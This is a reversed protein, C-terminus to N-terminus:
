RRRRRRWPWFDPPRLADVIAPLQDEKAKKLATLKVIISGIVKVLGTVATVLAAIGLLLWIIFPADAPLSHLM